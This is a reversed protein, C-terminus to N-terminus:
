ISQRAVSAIVSLMFRIRAEDEGRRFSKSLWIPKVGSMISGGSISSVGVFFFLRWFEGRAHAPFFSFGDGGAVIVGDDDGSIGDDGDAGADDAFGFRTLLSEM